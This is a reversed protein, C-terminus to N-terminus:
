QVTLTTSGSVPTLVGNIVLDMTATMLASAQGYGATVTYTGSAPAMTPPVFWIDCSQGPKCPAAHQPDAPDTESAATFPVANLTSVDGSSVALNHFQFVSGVPWPFIDTASPNSMTVRILNAAVVLGSADLGVNAIGKGSTYALGGANVIAVDPNLSNWQAAGTLDQKSGDSFAGTVKLQLPLGLTLLGNAPSITIQQLTAQTILVNATASVGDSSATIPATGGPVSGAVVGRKGVGTSIGPIGGDNSITGAGTGASSWRVAGTLDQRSGDTFTGIAVVGFMTQNALSIPPPPQQPDLPPCNTLPNSVTSACIDIRELAGPNVLLSSGGAQGGVSASIGTQGPGSAAAYGFSNVTAVTGQAANWSALLTLDQKSGDSFVGTALYQNGGDLPVAASGPSITVASLGGPNVTLPASASVTGAGPLTITATLNASGAGVAQAIKQLGLLDNVSAVGPTDSSWSANESVDQQFVTLNDSALFTAVAVMNQFGGQVVTANHPAVVLSQLQADDVNLATSGQRSGLTATISTSGPGQAALRGSAADISAVGANGTGWSMGQVNTVDQSSGDQFIAVARMQQGTGTALFSEPELAGHFMVMPLPLVNIAAVSSDDVAVSTSDHTGTSTYTATVTENGLGIGVAVGTASVRVVPSPNAATTWVVDRSLDQTSQDDFTGTAILQQSDALGFTPGQPALAISVLKASSVALMSAQSSIGGLTATISTSGAGAGAALGQTGASGSISAVGPASSNWAVLATIDPTTGDNYSGTARFQQSTGKAIQASAPSISIGTLQPVVTLITSVTFTKQSVPDIITGTVIVRGSGVATAKGGSDVTAVTTDESVWLMKSTIDQPNGFSYSGIVDFQVTSPPSQSLTATPNQPTLSVSVLAAGGGTGLTGSKSGCACLAAIACVLVALPTHRLM